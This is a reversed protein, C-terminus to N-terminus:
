DKCFIWDTGIWHFIGSCLYMLVFRVVRRRFVGRPMEIILLLGGACDGCAWFSFFFERVEEYGDSDSEFAVRTAAAAYFQYLPEEALVSYHDPVRLRRAREPM